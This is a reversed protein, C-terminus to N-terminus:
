LCCLQSHTLLKNSIHSLLYYNYNNLQETYSLKIWELSQIKLMNIETKVSMLLPKCANSSKVLFTNTKEVALTHLNFTAPSFILILFCM